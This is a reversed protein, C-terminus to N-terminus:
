QAVISISIILQVHFNCRRKIRLFVNESVPEHSQLFEDSHVMRYVPLERPWDTKSSLSWIHSQM